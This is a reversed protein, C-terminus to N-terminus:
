LKSEPDLWGWKIFLKKLILEYMSTVVTYTLLYKIADTAVFTKSVSVEIVIFITAFFTSFLAFKYKDPWHAPFYKIGWIGGFLIVIAYVVIGYTEFIQIIDM